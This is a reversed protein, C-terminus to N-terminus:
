SVLHSSKRYTSACCSYPLPLRRPRVNPTGVPVGVPLSRVAIRLIAGFGHTPHRWDGYTIIEQFTTSFRLALTIMMGGTCTRTVMMPLRASASSMRAMTLVALTLFIILFVKPVMGRDDLVTRATSFEAASAM